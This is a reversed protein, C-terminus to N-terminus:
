LTYDAGTSEVVPLEALGNIKVMEGPCAGNIGNNFALRFEVGQRMRCFIKSFNGSNINFEQTRSWGYHGVPHIVVTLTIVVGIRNTLFLKM